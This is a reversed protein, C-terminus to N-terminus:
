ATGQGFSPIGPDDTESIVARPRETLTPVCQPMVGESYYTRNGEIIARIEPPECEFYQGYEDLFGGDVGRGDTGLVFLATTDRPDSRDLGRMRHAIVFHSRKHSVAMAAALEPDFRTLDM